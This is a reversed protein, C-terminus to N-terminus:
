RQGRSLVSATLLHCHVSSFFPHCHLFQHLFLLLIRWSYRCSGFFPIRPQWCGPWQHGPSDSFGFCKKLSFSPHCHLLQHLFLFHLTRSDFIVVSFSIWIRIYGETDKVLLLIKQFKKVKYPRCIPNLGGFRDM